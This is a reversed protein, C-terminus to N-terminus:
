KSGAHLKDYSTTLAGIMATRAKQPFKTNSEVFRNKDDYMSLKASETSFTAPLLHYRMLIYNAFMRCTRGNGDAFPHISILLQYAMASTSIVTKHMEDSLAEGKQLQSECPTLNQIIQWIVKDVSEEVLMAPTTDIKASGQGIQAFHYRFGTRYPKITQPSYIENLELLMQRLHQATLSTDIREQILKAAHGRAEKSEPNKTTSVQDISLLPMVDRIDQYLYNTPVGDIMDFNYHPSSQSSLTSWQALFTSVADSPPYKALDKAYSKCAQKIVNVFVPSLPIGSQAMQDFLISLLEQNDNNAFRTPAIASALVKQLNILQDDTISVSHEQVAKKIRQTLQIPLDEPQRILEGYLTINTPPNSVRNLCDRRFTSISAKFDTPISRPAAVSPQAPQAPKKIQAKPVPPVKGIDAHGFM